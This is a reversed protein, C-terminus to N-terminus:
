SLTTQNRLRIPTYDASLPFELRAVTRDPKKYVRFFSSDFGLDRILLVIMALGLGKGETEDAFQVSFELIDKMERTNALKSRIRKEEEPLLTTNNEVFILLRKHDLDIDIEVSLGLDKLADAYEEEPVGNYYHKFEDLHLRYQEPDELNYGRKRFFVRKLNAKVANGVLEMVVYFLTISLSDIKLKRELDDFAERLKAKAEENLIRIEISKKESDM